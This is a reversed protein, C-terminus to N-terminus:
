FLFQVEIGLIEQDTIILLNNKLMESVAVIM